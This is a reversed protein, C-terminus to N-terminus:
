AGGQMLRMTELDTLKTIEYFISAHIVAGVALGTSTVSLYLNPQVTLRPIPLVIDQRNNIQFASTSAAIGSTGFIVLAINDPDTFTQQGTETNLQIQLSCDATPVVCGEWNNVLMSIGVISWGARGDVTLLTPITLSTSANVTLQQLTVKMESM